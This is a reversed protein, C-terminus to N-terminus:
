FLHPWDRLHSLPHRKSPTALGQPDRWSLHSWDRLHSLPHRQSLHPWDEPSVSSGKPIPATVWSLIGKLYTCGTMSTLSLIKKIFTCSSVQLDRQSIHPWFSAKPIPAAAWSQIGQLYTCGTVSTLSLIKKLLTCISLQLNRQSLHLREVWSGKTIPTTPGHPSLSSREPFPAAAWSLIGKLYTCGSLEPDRQYLHPGDSLHSLPDKQSLHPWEVWFGKSIPAAPEQPSVFFEKSFPAAARSLIGKLFTRSSLQPDRKSLHLQKVSSGKSFPIAVWSLIRQSLHLWSSAKPVPTAVWNLIGKLCTCSTGWTLCLIGKLFTHSSLQPNRQSLHPWSSAKTIPTAPGETSVSFGQLYTCGTGWAVCGIGKLYTFGTEWTLCLIGKLYTLGTERQRVQPVLLM